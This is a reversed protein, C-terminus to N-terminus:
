APDGDSPGTSGRRPPDGAAVHLEDLQDRLRRLDEVHFGGLLEEDASPAPTAGAPPPEARATEPGGLASGTGRHARAQMTFSASVNATIVAITLLGIAMVGTAVVRGYTTVPYFDGYGVTAVTVAAWWLAQGVTRINGEPAGREVFYVLVAGNLLFLLAAVLFRDLAGRRFLSRVLQISFVIRFPPFVVALVDVPHQRLYQWHHPALRARRWMDIGFVISIAVRLLVAGVLLDEREFDSFPVLVVWLTVLALLDLPTRTRTLYAELEPSTNSRRM